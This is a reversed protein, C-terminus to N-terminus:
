RGPREWDPWGSEEVEWEFAPAWLLEIRGNVVKFAEILTLGPIGDDGFKHLQGVGVIVGRPEDIIYYRRNDTRWRFRPGDFFARCSKGTRPQPVFGPDGTRDHTMTANTSYKGFETRQCDPSFPVDGGDGSTLGDWYSDAVRILETASVREDEPLVSEFAAAEKFPVEVLDATQFGIRNSQEELELIRGHEDVSLRVAYHWWIRNADPKGAITGFFISTRTVPDLFTYRNVITIGSVWTHGEGLEVVQSNATARLATALPLNDVGGSTKAELFQETIDSLCAKDCSQAVSDAACSQLVISLALCAVIRFV